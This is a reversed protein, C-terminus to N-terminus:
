RPWPLLEHHGLRHRVPRCLSQDFWDDGAHFSERGASGDGADADCTDEPARVLVQEASMGQQSTLRRYESFGAEFLGAMDAPETNDRTIDRYITNLDGGSWFSSEFTNSGLLAQNLLRRKRIIITWSAVSAALLLGMVLQVVFSANVIMDFFSYNESM